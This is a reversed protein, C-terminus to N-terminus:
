GQRCQGYWSDRSEQRYPGETPGGWLWSLDTGGAPLKRGCNPCYKFAPM